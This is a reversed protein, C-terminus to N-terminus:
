NVYLTQQTGRFSFSDKTKLKHTYLSVLNSIIINKISKVPKRSKKYTFTSPVLFFGQLAISAQYRLKGLYLSMFNCNRKIRFRKVNGSKKFYLM